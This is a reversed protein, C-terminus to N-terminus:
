IMDSRIDYDGGPPPGGAAWISTAAGGEAGRFPWGGGRWRGAPGGAVAWRM